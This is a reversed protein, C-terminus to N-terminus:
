RGVGFTGGQRRYLLGGDCQRLHYDHRFTEDALTCEKFYLNCVQAVITTVIFRKFRAAM